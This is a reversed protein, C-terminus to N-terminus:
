CTSIVIHDVEGLLKSRACVENMQARAVDEGIAVECLSRVEASTGVQNLEATDKLFLVGLQRHAYIVTHGKGVLRAADHVLRRVTVICTVCQKSTHECETLYLTDQCGDVALEADGVFM